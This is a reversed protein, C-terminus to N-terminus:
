LAKKLFFRSREAVFNPIEGFVEYGQRMYAKLAVPSFTDIWAGKAGRARAENEAATLLKGAMGQGRLTDPIFLLQTFLWNWSTYGSLGGIVKGTEDRILVALPLREAPGVDAENFASLGDLIVALADAAPTATLDLSVAPSGTEMLSGGAVM